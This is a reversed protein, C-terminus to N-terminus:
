EGFLPALEPTIQRAMFLPVVAAVSGPSQGLKTPVTLTSPVIVQFATRSVMEVVSVMM